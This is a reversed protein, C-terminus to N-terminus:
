GSENCLTLLFTRQQEQAFFHGFSPLTLLPLNKEVYKQNVKSRSDVTEIKVVKGSRNLTLRLNVEGYEPLRLQLKLQNVLEDCYGAQDSDFGNEAVTSAMDIHLSQILGPAETLAIPTSLPVALSLKALSEKADELLKQQQESLSVEEVAMEEVQSTTKKATAKPSPTSSPKAVKTKDAKAIKEVKKTSPTEKKTTKAVNKKNELSKPKKAPPQEKAQISKKQSSDVKKEPMSMPEVRPSTKELPQAESAAITQIAAVPNPKSSAAPYLKMTKVAIKRKPQLAIPPDSRYAIAMLGLAHVVIVLLTYFTQSPHQRCWAAAHTVLSINVM